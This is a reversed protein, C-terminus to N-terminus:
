PYKIVPSGYNVIQGLHYELHKVYDNIVFELTVPNEKGWNCKRSLATEPINKLIEVLYKNHVVWFEIVKKGSINQHFSHRTWNDQDYKILPVDEFQVRVFRQHNNAASDILHGLIEKKSWKNPAPKRSFEEEEINLLLAPITDCLYQMRNISDKIM